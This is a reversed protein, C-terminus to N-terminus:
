YQISICISDAKRKGSAFQLQLNKQLADTETRIAIHWARAKSCFVFTVKLSPFNFRITEPYEYITLLVKTDKQLHQDFCKLVALKPKGDHKLFM